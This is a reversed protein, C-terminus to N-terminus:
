PVIRTGHTLSIGQFGNVIDVEGVGKKLAMTASQVKPIMGGTIVGKEILHNVEKAKLLAIKNKMHDLVGSINTLLILHAAKLSCALASAIDDANINMAQANKNSGVSALVPLYKKSLLTRILELNIKEPKGARGLAPLPSVIAIAGDRCSLGVAPVKLHNLEAAIEKNINGCLVQEIVVMAEDSTFRRGEIFQSPINQKQLEAEIQPGGGHVFVVQYKKNWKKLDLLIKKRSVPSAMLEGGAKIVITQRM